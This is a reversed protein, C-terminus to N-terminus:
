RISKLLTNYLHHAEEDNHIGYANMHGDKFLTFEYTQYQILKAFSTSKVMNGPFHAAHKFAKPPFRFLYANGCLDEITREQQSELLTYEHKECVPCDKNKLADVNMSKYNINFADITILQKSFGKGSLYRVAEAVEYSAIMSIVPPIVGNIACSEGTDPITQLLCKLCPGQHDIGYVSGKSGVAAGYVWPIQYKHCVENILYRIKFNDMGDIIIDPEVNKILNEINSSTVELDYTTLNVNINIQNVKHKIAEVKSILTHADEEDFLTQRHLNSIEVIDMDVIAIHHAGMRALQDVIHSGLAGAGFILIQSSSLKQQGEEGFPAFRTQREYRSM